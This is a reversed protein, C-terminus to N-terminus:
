NTMAEIEALQKAEEIALEDDTLPKNEQNAKKVKPNNKIMAAIFEKAPDLYLENIGHKGNSKTALAYSFGHDKKALHAMKIGIIKGENSTWQSIFVSKLLNDAGFNCEGTAARKSVSKGSNKDYVRTTIILTGHVHGDIPRIIKTTTVTMFDGAIFVRKMVNASKEIDIKVISNIFAQGNVGSFEDSTSFNYPM